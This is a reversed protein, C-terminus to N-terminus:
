QGRYSGHVRMWLYDYVRSPIEEKLHFNYVKTPGGFKDEYTTIEFRYRTPHGFHEIDSYRWFRSDSPRDQSEYTVRDPYIRLVGECGGFTHLHKVPIEFTPSEGTVPMVSTVLPRKAQALLLASVEPTIQGSLLRFRFIRDRGLMRRQDEYTVIELMTSSAVKIQRIDRYFWSRSDKEHTTTYEIKSSTITLTGRCNRLTHQHEVSFEFKQASVLQPALFFMMLLVAIVRQGM